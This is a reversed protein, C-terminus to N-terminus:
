ILKAFAPDLFDELKKWKPYYNRVGQSGIHGQQLCIQFVEKVM